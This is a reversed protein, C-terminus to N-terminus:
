RYSDGGGAMTRFYESLIGMTSKTHIKDYNKYRNFSYSFTPMILTGKNGIVQFFSDIISQLFEQKSVLVEGLKFLESHICLTDGQKLGLKELTYNLDKPYILSEHSKLLAKM